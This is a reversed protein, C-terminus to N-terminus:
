NRSKYRKKGSGGNGKNRGYDEGGKVYLSDYQTGEEVNQMRQSHSLLTGTFM